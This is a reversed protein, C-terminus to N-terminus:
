VYFIYNMLADLYVDATNTLLIHKVNIWCISPNVGLKLKTIISTLGDRCSVEKL